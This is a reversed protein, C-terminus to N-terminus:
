LGCYYLEIEDLYMVREGGLRTLVNTVGEFFKLKLQANAIRCKLKWIRKIPFM